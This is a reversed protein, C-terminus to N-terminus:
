RQKGRGLLLGPDASNIAVLKDSSDRTTRFRDNTRGAIRNGEDRGVASTDSYGTTVSGIIKRNGDRIYDKKLIQHGGPQLICLVNSFQGSRLNKRSLRNCPPRETNRRQISGAAHGDAFEHFLLSRQHAGAFRRSPERRSQQHGAQESLAQAFEIVETESLNKIEFYTGVQAHESRLQGDAHLSGFPKASVPRVLRELPSARWLLGVSISFMEEVSLRREIPCADRV